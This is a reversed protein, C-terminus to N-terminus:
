PETRTAVDATTTVDDKTTIDPLPSEPTAPKERLREVALTLEEVRRSLAAIEDRTPIGFKSMTRAVSEELGDGTKTWLGEAARGAAEAVKKAQAAADRAATQASEAVSKAREKAEGEYKEGQQVLESFLKSGEQEAVALAGLGALWIKHASERVEDQWSKTAM